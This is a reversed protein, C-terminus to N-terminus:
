VVMGVFGSGSSNRRGWDQWCISAWVMEVMAPDFLLVVLWQGELGFLEGLWCGSGPSCKQEIM